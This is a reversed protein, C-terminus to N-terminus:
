LTAEPSIEGFLASAIQIQGVPTSQLFILSIFRRKCNGFWRRFARKHAFEGGSLRHVRPNFTVVTHVSKSNGRWVSVIPRGIPDFSNLTNGTCWLLRHCKMLYLILGESGLSKGFHHAHGMADLPNSFIFVQTALRLIKGDFYGDAPQGVGRLKIENKGTGIYRSAQFRYQRGESVTFINASM